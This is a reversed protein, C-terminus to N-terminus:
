GGILGAGVRGLAAAVNAMAGAFTNGSSLAAGGLGQEMAAQFTAFDIAGNSAMKAAEEATVGM